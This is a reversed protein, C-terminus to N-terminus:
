QQHPNETPIPAAALQEHPKTVIKFSETVPHPVTPKLRPQPFYPPTERSFRSDIKPPLMLIVPVYGLNPDPTSLLLTLNSFNEPVTFKHKATIFM